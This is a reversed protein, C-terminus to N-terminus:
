ANQLARRGAERLYPILAEFEAQREANFIILYLSRCDPQACLFVAADLPPLTRPDRGALSSAPTDGAPFPIFCTGAECRPCKALEDLTMEWVQSSYPARVAKFVVWEENQESM